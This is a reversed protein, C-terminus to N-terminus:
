AIVLEVVVPSQALAPRPSALAICPLLLWFHLTKLSFRIMRLLRARARADHRALVEIRYFVNGETIWLRAFRDVGKEVVCTTPAALTAKGSLANTFQADKYAYPEQM